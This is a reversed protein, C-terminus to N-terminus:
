IFPVIKYTQLCKFMQYITDIDNLHTLLSYNNSNNSNDIDNAATTTDFKLSLHQVSPFLPPIWYFFQEM